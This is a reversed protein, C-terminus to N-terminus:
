LPTAKQVRLSPGAELIITDRRSVSSSLLLKALEDQVLEQIIRRLSRAGFEEDYGREALDRIAEPTTEFGIGREQLQAGVSRLMLEVIQEVHQSNLPKFIVIGDFRNLFEPKFFQSLETGLIRQKITEAPLGQKAMDQISATAANSTAILIVNTFDVTRGQNDTMRGDDMVQLFVNLIDPHSKEIEDLLLLAFPSSRIAETLYGGADADSFGPPAGILRNISSKEQYESMDLRVMQTESGFYVEAVTKALETKGVGTPGLFLLNVIPRKASRMEARARRLSSAVMNVAEEQNVIRQHIKKELNLLKESEEASVTGLPINTKQSILNAVDQESILSTRGRQSAVQTAVEQLIEIAKEPLMRDHIYRGSFVVTAAIADYSFFVQHHHEIAGVKAELIQIAENGTVEDIEVPEFVSDLISKGEIFRRYEGPTTTAIAQAGGQQLAQAFVGALDLSGERGVTIGIMTQIQAVVLIVNGSHVVENLIILLRQQAESASVGSILRSVDLSVLRKDQLFNPVNEEVMRQAIGEIITTRGVGSNGILLASRRSGGEMIQFIEKMEAERGICPMLYGSQALQTLDRGFANLAPTAIATMARDLNNTPRLSASHRFRRWNAQLQKRTRLWAIVNRIKDLDVDVDRLLEQVENQQLVVAELLETLGVKQQRLEWALAYAQLLIEQTRASLTAQRHLRSPEHTLIRSMRERLADFPIGLRSLIISTQDFKLLAIFLHVPNAHLHGYSQALQWSRTVAQRAESTFYEAVEIKKRRPLTNLDPVPSSILGNSSADYPRKPLYAIRELDREFRFAVYSDALLSCWFLLSTWSRVWWFEWLPQGAASLQLLETGFAIAGVAGILFLTGNLVAAVIMALHEQAIRLADIRKGWYLLHTGTWARLGQGQCRPCLRHEVRGANDCTHCSLFQLQPKQANVAM